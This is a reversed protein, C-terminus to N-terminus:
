LGSNAKRGFAAFEDRSVEAFEAVDPNSTGLLRFLNMNAAFRTKGTDSDRLPVGCHHFSCILTSSKTNDLFSVNLRLLQLAYRKFASGQM